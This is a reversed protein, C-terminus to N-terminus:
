KKTNGGGEASRWLTNRADVLGSTELPNKQTQAGSKTRREGGAVAGM